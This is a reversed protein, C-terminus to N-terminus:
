HGGSSKIDVIRSPLFIERLGFPIGDGLALSLSALSSSPRDRLWDPAYSYFRRLVRGHFYNTSTLDPRWYLFVYRKNRM